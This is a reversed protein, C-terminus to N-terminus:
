IHDVHCIYVTLAGWGGSRRIPPLYGFRGIGLFTQQPVSFHSALLDVLVRTGGDRKSPAM